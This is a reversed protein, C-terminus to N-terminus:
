NTDLSSPAYSLRSEQQLICLFMELWAVVRAQIDVSVIEVNLINTYNLKSALKVVAATLDQEDVLHKLQGVPALLQTLAVVLIWSEADDKGARRHHSKLLLVRFEVAYDFRVVETSEREALEEVELGTQIYATVRKLLNQFVVLIYRLLYYLQNTRAVIEQLIEM